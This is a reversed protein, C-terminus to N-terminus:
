VNNVSVDLRCQTYADFYRGLPPISKGMPSINASEPIFYDLLWCIFKIQRGGHAIANDDSVYDKGYYELAATDDPPVLRDAYQLTMDLNTDFTGFGHFSSGFPIIKGHPFMDHAYHSLVNEVQLSALCRLRQQLDSPRLHEYVQMIQDDFTCSESKLKSLNSAAKFQEFQIPTDISESASISRNTHRYTMYHNKWPIVDSQFAANNLIGNVGDASSYELLLFDRNDPSKYAIATAIDGFQKCHHFANNYCQDSEVQLLISNTAQQM